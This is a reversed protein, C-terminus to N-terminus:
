YMERVIDELGWGHFLALFQFGKSRRCFEVALKVRALDCGGVTEDVLLVNLGSERRREDLCANLDILFEAATIPSPMQIVMVGVGYGPM